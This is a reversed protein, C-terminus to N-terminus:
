MSEINRRFIPSKVRNKTLKKALRSEIPFIKNIDALLLYKPSIDASLDSM